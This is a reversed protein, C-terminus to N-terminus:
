MQNFCSLARRNSLSHHFPLHSVLFTREAAFYVKPEIRVPVSIRKGAPATWDRVMIRDDGSQVNNLNNDGGNQIREESDRKGEGDQKKQTEHLKNRLTEDFATSPALPDISLARSKIDNGILSWKRRRRPGSISSGEAHEDDELPVDLGGNRSGSGNSHTAEAEQERRQKLMKERYAIAEEVETGSLGTHQGENKAPATNMDEEEGESVPETYPHFEPSYSGTSAQRSSGKSASSPREIVSLYGTDPKLIDVDM